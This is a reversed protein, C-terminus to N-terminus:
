ASHKACTWETAVTCNIRACENLWLRQLRSACQHFGFLTTPIDSSQVWKWRLLSAALWATPKILAAIRPSLQSGFDSNRDFRFSATLNLWSLPILEDQAYVFATNMTRTGGYIRDATVHEDIYGAGLTLTNTNSMFWDTQVEAKNMRQDFAGSFFLSGDDRYTDTFNNEYRSGYLRLSTKVFPSFRHTLNGSVNWDLLSQKSDIFRTGTQAIGQQSETLWRASLALM